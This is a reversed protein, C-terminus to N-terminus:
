QLLLRLSIELRSPFYKEMKIPVREVVRCSVGSTPQSGSLRRTSRQPMYIRIGSLDKGLKPAEFETMRCEHVEYFEGIEQDGPELITLPGTPRM